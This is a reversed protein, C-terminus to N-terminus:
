EIVGIRWRPLPPWYVVVARGLLLREPVSGWSRSDSSSSSNDGFMLYHGPQVYFTQVDPDNVSRLGVPPEKWRVSVESLPGSSRTYYVDRWLQVKTCVVDGQAGIRAPRERDNDTPDFKDRNPSDYDADKGFPLVKNDVWVTLRSDVNAFRLHHTGTGSIRTPRTALVTEKETANSIRRLECQGGAFRAEFRETGKNLELRVEADPSNFAAKCEVILDFCWSGAWSNRNGEYELQNYGLFDKIEVPDLSPENTWGPKLHKYRVWSLEGSHKFGKEQMEWGNRQESPHWRTRLEGTLGEPQEDLNFVPRRMALIQDPDKRIMEFGGGDPNRFLQVAEEDSPYMYWYVWRDLERDPQPRGAYTLTRNVYLDGKYVAITEGGLGVLRKIYNMAQRDIPSYPEVPYKFVPVEFRHPDRIYYQFKSVLVRDGSHSSHEGTDRWLHGCNPCTYWSVDDRLGNRNAANVEFEHRCQPCQAIVHDGWLTEAMSGTPIVFAEAVFLKLLLVLVVVFVITEKVERVIDKHHPKEEKQKVGAAGRTPAKQAEPKAAAATAPTPQGNADVTTKSVTEERM